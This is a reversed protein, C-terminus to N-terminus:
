DRPQLNSDQRPREEDDATPQEGAQQAAQEEAQQGAQKPAWFLGLMAGAPDEIVAYRWATPDGKPGVRVQGGNATASELALDLDAVQLYSIWVPPMDANDGRAHCVGGVPESAPSVVVYDDYDGMSLPQATWGLVECYFDKVKEADKVTLDLHVVTGLANTM